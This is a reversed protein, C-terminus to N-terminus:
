TGSGGGTATTPAQGAPPAAASDAAMRDLRQQLRDIEVQMSEPLTNRTHPITRMETERDGKNIYLNPEPGGPHNRV